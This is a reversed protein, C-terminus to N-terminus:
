APETLTEAGDQSKPSSERGGTFQEARAMIAETLGSVSSM